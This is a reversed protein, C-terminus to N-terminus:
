GRSRKIYLRRLASKLIPREAVRIQYHFCKPCRITEQVWKRKLPCDELEQLIDLEYGCVGCELVKETKIKGAEIAIEDDGECATDLKTEAAFEYLAIIENVEFSGGKVAKSGM